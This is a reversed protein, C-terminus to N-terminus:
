LYMYSNFYPFYKDVLLEKGQKGKEQNGLLSELKSKNCTYRIIQFRCFVFEQYIIYDLSFKNPDITNNQGHYVPEM